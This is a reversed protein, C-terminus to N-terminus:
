FGDDSLPQDDSIRGMAAVVFSYTRHATRLVNCAIDRRFCRRGVRLPAHTTSVIRRSLPCVKVPITPEFGVREAM